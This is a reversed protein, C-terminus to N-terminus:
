PLSKILHPSKLWLLYPSDYDSLWSWLRHGQFHRRRRRKKKYLQSKNWSFEVVKSTLCLQCKPYPRSPLKEASFAVFLCTISRLAEFPLRTIMDVWLPTIFTPSSTGNMEKKVSWEITNLIWLPADPWGKYSWTYVSGTFVYWFSAMICEVTNLKFGIWQVHCQQVFAASWAGTCPCLTIPVLVCSSTPLM